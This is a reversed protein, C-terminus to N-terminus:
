GVLREGEREAMGYCGHTAAILAPRDVIVIKGRTSKILGKGELLQLALTVGARRVGLMLSLFEHTIEFSNGVRDAIMLLWRALREELKFTGNAVTTSAIQLDFARGHLLLIAKLTPSSNIADVLRAASASRATGAVQVFTRFPSQTDGQILALGTMGENGIIGVETDKRGPIHSVVSAVATEPFYVTELPTGAEGLHQRLKLNVLELPGLLALDSPVLSLLLQNAIPRLSM